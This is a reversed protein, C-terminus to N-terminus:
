NNIKSSYFYYTRDSNTKFTYSVTAARELYKDITVPNEELDEKTISQRTEILETNKYDKYIGVKYLNNENTVNTYIVKENIILTGDSKKTASTLKRYYPKVLDNNKSEDKKFTVEYYDNEENYTMKGIEKEEDFTFTHELESENVYVVKEGFFRKMYEKIKDNSLSYIELDNNKKNLDVFDDRKAFQLAYYFKDKNSFSEFVTENEKLFKSNYEDRNYVVYQYLIGVNEDTIEVQTDIKPSTKVKKPGLIANSILFVMLGCLISVVVVIIIPLKGTYKVNSNGDESIEDEFKYDM